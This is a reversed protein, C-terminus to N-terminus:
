RSDGEYVKTRETHLLDLRLLHGDGPLLVQAQLALDGAEGHRGDLPHPVAVLDLYSWRALSKISIM